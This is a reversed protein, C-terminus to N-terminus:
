DSFLLDYGLLSVLECGVWVFLVISFLYWHVCACCSLSGVVNM